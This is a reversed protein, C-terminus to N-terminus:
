QVQKVILNMVVIEEEMHFVNLQKAKHMNKVIRNMVDNEEEM